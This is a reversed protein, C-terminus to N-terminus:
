TSSLVLKTANVDIETVKCNKFERAEGLVDKVMINNGQTKAYIVDKFVEKGDFIVTFECMEMRDQLEIIANPKTIFKTKFQEFEM